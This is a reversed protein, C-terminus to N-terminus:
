NAKDTSQDDAISWNFRSTNSYAYRKCVELSVIKYADQKPTAKKNVQDENLSIIDLLNKAEQSNLQPNLCTLSVYGMATKENNVDVFIPRYRIQKLADEGTKKLSQAKALREKYLEFETQTTAIQSSWISTCLSPTINKLLCDQFGSNSSANLQEWKDKYERLNAIIKNWDFDLVTVATNKVIYKEDLDTKITVDAPNCAVCVGTLLVTILQPLRRV